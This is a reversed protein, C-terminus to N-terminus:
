WTPERNILYAQVVSHAAAAKFLGAVLTRDAVSCKGSFVVETIVKAIDRVVVVGSETVEFPVSLAFRMRDTDRAPSARSLSLDLKREAGSITMEATEYRFVTPNKTDRGIPKFTHAVSALDTLVLNSAAAM